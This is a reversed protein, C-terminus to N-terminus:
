DEDLVEQAALFVEEVARWFDDNRADEYEPRYIIAAAGELWSDIEM